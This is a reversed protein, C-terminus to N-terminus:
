GAGRAAAACLRSGAPPAAEKSAAASLMAVPARPFKSFANRLATFRLRVSALTGAIM